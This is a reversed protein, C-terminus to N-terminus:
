DEQGDELRELQEKAKELTYKYSDLAGILTQAAMKTIRMQNLKDLDFTLHWVSDLEDSARKFDAVLHKYSDNNELGGIISRCKEVEVLLESRLQEATKHM